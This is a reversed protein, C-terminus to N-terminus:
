RRARRIVQRVASVDTTRDWAILSVLSRITAPYRGAPYPV